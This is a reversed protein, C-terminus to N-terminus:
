SELIWLHLGPCARSLPSNLSLRPWNPQKCDPWRRSQCRKKTVKIGCSCASYGSFDTDREVSPTVRGSVFDLVGASLAVLFLIPLFVTGNVLHYIPAAPDTQEATKWFPGIDLLTLLLLVVGLGFRYFMSIRHYFHPPRKKPHPTPSTHKKSPGEQLMSLLGLCVFCGGLVTFGYQMSVYVPKM